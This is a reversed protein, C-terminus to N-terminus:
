GRPMKERKGTSYFLGSIQFATSFFQAVFYVAVPLEARTLAGASSLSLAPHAAGVVSRVIDDAVGCLPKAM